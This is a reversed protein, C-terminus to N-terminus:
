SQRPIKINKAECNFAAIWYWWAKTQVELSEPYEQDDAYSPSTWEHRRHKCRIKGDQFEDYLKPFCTQRGQGDDIGHEIGAADTSEAM